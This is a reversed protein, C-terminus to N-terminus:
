QPTQVATQCRYHMWEQARVRSGFQIRVHGSEASITMGLTLNGERSRLQAAASRM